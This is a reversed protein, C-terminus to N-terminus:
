FESHNTPQVSNNKLCEDSGSSAEHGNGYSLGSGFERELILILLFHLQGIKGTFAVYDQHKIREIETRNAGILM